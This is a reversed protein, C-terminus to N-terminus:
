GVAVLWNMYYWCLWHYLWLGRGFYQEWRNRIPFAEVLDDVTRESGGNDDAASNLLGGTFVANLLVFVNLCGLRVGDVNAPNVFGIFIRPVVNFWAGPVPLLLPPPVSNEGNSLVTRFGCCCVSKLVIILSLSFLTDIKFLLPGALASLVLLTILAGPKSVVPTNDYSSILWLIILKSMFPLRSNRSVGCRVCSLCRVGPLEVVSIDDRGRRAWSSWSFVRYLLFISRLNLIKISSSNLLWSFFPNVFLSM